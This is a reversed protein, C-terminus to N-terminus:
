QNSSEDTGNVQDYWSQYAQGIHLDDPSNFNSLDVTCLVDSDLDERYDYSSLDRVTVAASNFHDAFDMLAAAFQELDKVSFDEQTVWYLTNKDNVSDWAKFKMNHPIKSEFSNVDFPKLSEENIKRKSDENSSDSENAKSKKALWITLGTNNRMVEINPDKEAFYKDIEADLERTSSMFGQLWKSDLSIDMTGNDVHGAASQSLEVKVGSGLLNRFYELDEEDFAYPPYSDSVEHVESLEKDGDSSVDFYEKKSAIDSISDAIFSVAENIDTFDRLEYKELTKGGISDIINPSYKEVLSIFVERPYPFTIIHIFYKDNINAYGSTGLDKDKLNLNSHLGIKSVEDDFTGLITRLDSDSLKEDEYSENVKNTGLDDIYLGSIFSNPVVVDEVEDRAQVFASLHQQVGLEAVIDYAQNEDDVTKYLSSSYENGNQTLVFIDYVEKAESNLIDDLQAEEDSGPEIALDNIVDDRYDESLVLDKDSSFLNDVSEFLKNM